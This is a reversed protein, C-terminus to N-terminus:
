PLRVTAALGAPMPGDIAFVAHVRYSPRAGDQYGISVIKGAYGRGAVEVQVAQGNSLSGAAEPGLEFGVQMRDAEAVLLLPTAELRTVVTQAPQVHRALVYADFPARLESQELEQRAQQEAALAAQLAAEARADAIRALDLEHDALLTREYLEDARELEKGAEIRQARQYATEAEAQKLRARLARQDLQLLLQGRKVRDGAEVNVRSVVGSVATTLATPQSWQTIGDWQAQLLPTALLLIAIVWPRNTRM